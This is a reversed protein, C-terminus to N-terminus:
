NLRAAPCVTLAFVVRVAAAAGFACCGRVLTEASAMGATFVRFCVLSCVVGCKVFLVHLM